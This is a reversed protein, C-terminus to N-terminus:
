AVKQHMQIYKSQIPYGMLAETRRLAMCCLMYEMAPSFRSMFEFRMSSANLPELTTIEWNNQGYFDHFFTPCINYFGHNMMTMPSLHLIRGGVKVAQSANIIAQGINFCHELTGPDLVLDFKGLDHPENLDVIKEDGTTQHYDVCELTAGMHEFFEFSEPLKEKLRHRENQNTFKKPRFGFAKEIHDATCIIDPYGLCLVKAGKLYPEIKMLAYLPLGM